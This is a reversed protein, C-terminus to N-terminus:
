KIRKAVVVFRGNTENYDCTSLTLLQDGYQATVYTDYFSLDSMEKMYSNFELESNAHIFDYYKFVVDEANYVRSRFVYMVQFLQKEYITDFQIYPHKEYYKEKEYEELSAFMKGSSMHHGYVIYNDSGRIVDCRYDLFISGCKDEKQDFNHNLYYENDGCQLVPYDIITDDIKIWGILKKNSNYLTEYEPLINPIIYNDETYNIVIEDSSDSNNVLADSGILESLQEFRDASHANTYYYYSFYGISGIALLSFCLLIIRRRIENKRLQAEIMPQLEEDTYKPSINKRKSNDNNRKKEFAINKDNKKNKKQNNGGYYEDKHNLLDYVDDDFSNGLNTEFKCKGSQLYNALRSVSEYDDFNTMKQLKKIKEADRLAAQYDAETRFVNRDACYEKKLKLKLEM